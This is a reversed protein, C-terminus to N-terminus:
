PTEKIHVCQNRKAKKLITEKNKVKPMKVIAHRPTATKQNMKNPITQAEQVQINAEKVLKPFSEAIIEKFNRNWRRQPHRYHSHKLM